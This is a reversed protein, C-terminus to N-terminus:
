KPKHNAMDFNIIQLFHALFHRNLKHFDQTNTGYDFMSFQLYFVSKM